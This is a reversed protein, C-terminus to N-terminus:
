RIKSNRRLTGLVSQPVLLGHKRYTYLTREATKLSHHMVLRLEPPITVLRLPDVMVGVREYDAALFVRLDCIETPRLLTRPHDNAPPDSESTGWALWDRIRKLLTASVCGTSLSPLERPTMWIDHLTQDLTMGRARGKIAIAVALTQGQARTIQSCYKIIRRRRSPLLVGARAPAPAAATSSSM